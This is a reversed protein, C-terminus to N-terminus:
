IKRELQNALNEWARAVKRAAIALEKTVPGKEYVAFALASDVRMWFATVYNQPDEGDIEDEIGPNDGDEYIRRTPLRRVKGDLGIREDVPLHNGTAKRANQVTTHSVGLEAAIARDSKEPSAAVARAAREGAPIYPTGCNCAADAKAGCSSCELKAAVPMRLVTAVM